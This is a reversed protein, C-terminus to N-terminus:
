NYKALWEKELHTLDKQYVDIINEKLSKHDDASQILSIFRDRSYRDILYKSFSRWQNLFQQRKIKDHVITMYQTELSIINGQNKLKQIFSDIKTFKSSDDCGFYYASGMRIPEYKCNLRNLISYAIQYSDPLKLSVITTESSLGMCANPKGFMFYMENFDSCKYYDINKMPKLAIKECISVYLSDLQLLNEKTSVEYSKHHIVFYDSRAKQWNATLIQNYEYEIPVRIKKTKKIIWEQWETDLGLVDEEYIITLTDIFTVIDDHPHSYWLRRFKSEGYKEILFLVFTASIPYTKKSAIRNYNRIVSDLNPCANNDLMNKVLVASPIHSIRADPWQFATALGERLLDNPHPPTKEQVATISIAHIVVHANYPHIAFCVRSDISNGGQHKKGELGKLFLEPQEDSACIYYHIKYPMEYHLLSSMQQYLEELKNLSSESPTIDLHPSVFSKEDSWYVVFHETETKHYNKCLVEWPAAIKWENKEFVLYFWRKQIIGWPDNVQFQIYEGVKEGDLIEHEDLFDENILDNYKNYYYARQGIHGAGRAAETIIKNITITDNTCAATFYSELVQHANDLDSCNGHNYILVFIILYSSSQIVNCKHM